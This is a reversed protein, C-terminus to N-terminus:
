SNAIKANTFYTKDMTTKGTIVKLAAETGSGFSGDAVISAMDKKALNTNIWKQLQKVDNGTSGKRLPFGLVKGAGGGSKAPSVGAGSGSDDSSSSDDTTASDDKKGKVVFFIIGSIVLAAVGGIILTKKSIKM